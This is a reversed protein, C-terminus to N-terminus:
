ESRLAAAPDVRAARLSPVAAALATAIFVVAAALFFSTAAPPPLIEIVSVLLYGFGIAIVSGIATGTAGLWMASKVVSRAIGGVTAGLAMRIGFERTRQMVLYAVVGYTGSVALALAVTGLLLVVSSYAQLAWLQLGVIQRMPYMPFAAGDGVASAAETVARRLESMTSRGRVLLATMDAAVLPGPFYISSPDIGTAVAGSIVDKAIGIVEVQKHRLGRTGPLRQNADSIYITEGLADRGPWFRAATAESIVAVDARAAGEDRTFARGRVIPVRFLDFYEPSIVTFGAVVTEDSGAPSVFIRRLPGYLPPRWTASIREIRPDGLLRQVIAARHEPPVRLDGVPDIALGTDISSLRRLEGLVGLATVLFVACAAVQAIVLANRVRSARVTEGFEGRSARTLSTRSAYIAPLLGFLAAAAFAGLVLFASVRMDPDMPAMMGQVPPLGEPWTRLILLPVVRSTAWTLGLAVIGAPGALVASEVLLQRVIRARRAGLSLRVAIERQRGVGRALMMNAVNACAILLVLAFASLIATFLTLTTGTIPIRTARSEVHTLTPRDDATAAAFRRKLWVDFWAAAAKQSVGDRARALVTLMRPREPAYPNRVPLARAMTLPFWAGVAADGFSAFGPQAVGVVVFESRGFAITKGVIAPDAGFRADWADHSLVVVAREGDRRADDEVLMRGLFPRVGLAAFYNGTVIQVYMPGDERAMQFASFAMVDSFVESTTRLAAVDEITYSLRRAAVTDWGLEYLGFPDRVDYPKLLYGNIVTFASCLFGLGLGITGAVTAAFLPNRRLGRLADRLDVRLSEVM